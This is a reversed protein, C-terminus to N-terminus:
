GGGGQDGSGGGQDGSGGGQDDSGGGQGSAGGQDFDFVQVEGIGAVQSGIFGVFLESSSSALIPPGNDTGASVGIFTFQDGQPLYIYAKAFNNPNDPTTIDGVVLADRNITIETGYDVACHPTDIKQSESWTGGGFTFVYAVGSGGENECLSDSMAPGGPAGIALLHDQLSVASGFQEDSRGDISILKQQQVWQKGQRTFVYVAGRGDADSPAGVAATNDSAAVAAGFGDDTSGDGSSLTQLLHFQGQHDVEYISTGLFVQDHAIAMPGKLSADHNLPVWDDHKRQFVYVGTQSTGVIALDNEMVVSGGFRDDPQPNPHDISGARTWPGLGNREFVAVRGTENAFGPMGILLTHQDPSIASGFEVSPPSVAEQPLVESDTPALFQTAPVLPFV